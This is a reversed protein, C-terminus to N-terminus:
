SWSCDPQVNEIDQQQASLSLRQTKEEPLVFGAGERSATVHELGWGDQHGQAPGAATRRHRGRAASGLDPRQVGLTTLATCLGGTAWTATGECLEAHEPAQQM